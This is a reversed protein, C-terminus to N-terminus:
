KYLKNNLFMLIYKYKYAFVSNFKLLNRKCNVLVNVKGELAHKHNPTIDLVRDFCELADVYIDAKSARYGNGILADINYPNIKLRVNCDTM